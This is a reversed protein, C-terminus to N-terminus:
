WIFCDTVIERPLGNKDRSARPTMDDLLPAPGHGPHHSGPEHSTDTQVSGPRGHGAADRGAPHPRAYPCASALAVLCPTRRPSSETSAILCTSRFDPKSACGPLGKAAIMWCFFDGGCIGPPIAAQGAGSGARLHAIGVTARRSGLSNRRRM